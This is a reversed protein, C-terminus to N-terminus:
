NEAFVGGAGRWGKLGLFTVIEKGTNRLRCLLPDYSKPPASAPNTASHHPAPESPEPQLNISFTPLTKFGALFNRVKEMVM